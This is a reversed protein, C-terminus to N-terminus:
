DLAFQKRWDVDDQLPKQDAKYMVFQDLVLVDMNTRM